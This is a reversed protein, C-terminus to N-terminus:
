LVKGAYEPGGVSALHQWQTLWVDAFRRALRGSRSLEDVNAISDLWVTRAGILKGAVLGFLGPAAGTTIVVSPRIRIVASFMQLGLVLMAWPTWSTADRVVIFRSPAVDRQYTENVTVYITEQQEFAPRLRLLEIWHGGGSSVALVRNASRKM